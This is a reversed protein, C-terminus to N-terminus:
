FAAKTVPPPNLYEGTRGDFGYYGRIEPLGDELAFKHIQEYVTKWTVINITNQALPVLQDIVVRNDEPMFVGTGKTKKADEDSTFPKWVRV